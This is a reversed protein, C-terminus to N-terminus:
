KKRKALNKVSMLGIIKLKFNSFYKGKISATAAPQIMRKAKDPKYLGFGLRRKTLSIERTKKAQEVPKAAM